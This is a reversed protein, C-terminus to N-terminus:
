NLDWKNIKAKTERAKPALAVFGDSVAVDILNGGM